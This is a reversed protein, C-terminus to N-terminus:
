GHRLLYRVGEIPPTALEFEVNLIGDDVSAWLGALGTALAASLAEHNEAAAVRDRFTTVLAATQQEDDTGQHEEVKAEAQEVLSTADVLEADVQQVAELALPALGPRSM